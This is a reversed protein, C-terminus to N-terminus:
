GHSPIRMPTSPSRLSPLCQRNPTRSASYARPRHTKEGPGRVEGLAREERQTLMLEKANAQWRAQIAKVQAPADHELARAALATVEEILALRRAKAEGRATSLAARVPALAAELRADLQRWAKPDVSGLDGDRWRVRGRFVYAKGVELTERAAAVHEPMVMPEFDGTPDSMAVFALTGGSQAPRYQVRRVVGDPQAAILRLSAAASM